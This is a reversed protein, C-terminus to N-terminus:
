GPYVRHHHDPPLVYEGHELLCNVRGLRGGVDDLADDDPVASAAPYCPNRKSTARFMEIIATSARPTANRGLPPSMAEATNVAMVM